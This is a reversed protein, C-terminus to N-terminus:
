QRISYGDYNPVPRGAKKHEPSYKYIWRYVTNIGIGWLKSFNTISIKGSALEVVEQRKFETSFVRRSRINLNTSKKSKLDDKSM